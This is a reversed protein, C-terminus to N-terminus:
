KRKLAMALPLKSYHEFYNLGWVSAACVIFTQQNGSTGQEQNAWKKQLSPDKPFSYLHVGDKDTLSCYAAICRAVCRAVM